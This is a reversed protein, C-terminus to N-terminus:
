GQRYGEQFAADESTAEGAPLGGSAKPPVAGALRKRRQDDVPPQPPKPKTDTLFKDISKAVTLADWSSGIQAQYEPKQKALWERYPTQIAEGEPTLGVIERWNEHRMALLQQATNKELVTLQQSVTEKVFEGMKLPDVIAGADPKGPEAPKATGRLKGLLRNFGKATMDALEPFDAKMEEFDEATMTVSEGFPTSAQLEKLTRELGGMKGFAMGFRQEVTAKIEDVAAATAKFSNLEEETIQVYKPAKPTAAPQGTAAAPPEGPETAPPEPATPTPADKFGDQFQADEEADTLAENAAPEGAPAPDGTAPPVEVATTATGTDVTEDPKTAVTM